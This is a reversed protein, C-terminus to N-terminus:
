LYKFVIEQYREREIRNRNFLSIKYPYPAAKLARALSELNTQIWGTHERPATLHLYDSEIKDLQELLENLVEDMKGAESYDFRGNIKTPADNQLVLFSNGCHFRASISTYREFETMEIEMKNDDMDWMFSIRKKGGSAHNNSFYKTFFCRVRSTYKDWVKEKILALVPEYHTTDEPTEVGVVVLGGNKNEQTQLNFSADHAEILDSFFQLPICTEMIGCFDRHGLYEPFILANVFRRLMPTDVFGIRTKGIQMVCCPKFTINSSKQRQTQRKVKRYTDCHLIELDSSNVRITKWPKETDLGFNRGDSKVFQNLYELM